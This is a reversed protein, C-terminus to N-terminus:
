LRVASAYRLQWRLLLSGDSADDTGVLEELAAAVVAPEATTIGFLRHGFCGMEERSAFRWPVEVLTEDQVEFGAYGLTRIFEGEDIFIGKHGGPTHADVFTNLFRGTGTNTSVDGVALRGGPKLLRGWEKYVPMKDDIHHLGALSAIGDLSAPPLKVDELSNILTTYRGAIPAAFKESPEVCIIGVENGLQASIEDAVYGGGAPADGILQGPKCDLRDLIEARESERAEPCLSIAENYEHGRAEFIEVYDGTCSREPTKLPATM